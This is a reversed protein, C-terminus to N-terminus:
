ASWAERAVAAFEARNRLGVYLMVAPLIVMEDRPGPILLAVALLGAAWKPARKATLKVLARAVRWCRVLAPPAPRYTMCGCTRTYQGAELCEAESGYHESEVHGCVCPRGAAVMGLVPLLPLPGASAMAALAVAATTNDQM